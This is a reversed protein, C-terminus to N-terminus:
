SQHPTSCDHHFTVWFEQSPCESRRDSQSQILGVRGAPRMVLSPLASRPFQEEQGRPHHQEPSSPSTSEWHDEDSKKQKEEINERDSVDHVENFTLNHPTTSGWM